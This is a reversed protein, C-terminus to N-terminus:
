LNENDLIILIIFTEKTPSDANILAIPGHKMEGACIAEAHIYVLEKIKLAGERAIPLTMGKALIFVSQAGSLTQAVQRCSEQISLTCEGFVVPLMRLQNKLQIRNNTKHNSKDKLKSMFIAVLILTVVQCTFSKSAPVAVERGCNVYVGCNVTRAILSSVTNVIGITFM